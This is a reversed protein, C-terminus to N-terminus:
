PRKQWLWGIAFFLCAYGQSAEAQSRKGARNKIKKQIFLGPDFGRVQCVVIFEPDGKGVIQARWV